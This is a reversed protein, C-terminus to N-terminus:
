LHSFSGSDAIRCIGPAKREPSKFRGPAKGDGQGPLYPIHIFGVQVETGECRHRLTYFLDNCVYAGASCSATLVNEPYVTDGAFDITM